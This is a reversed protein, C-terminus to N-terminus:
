LNVLTVFDLSERLEHRGGPCLAIVSPVAKVDPDRVHWPPLTVLSRSPLDLFRLEIGLVPLM